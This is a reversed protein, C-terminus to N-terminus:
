CPGAGGGLSKSFPKHGGGGMLGTLVLSQGGGGGVLISFRGIGTSAYLM